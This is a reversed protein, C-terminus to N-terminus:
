ICLMDGYVFCSMDHCGSLTSTMRLSLVVPHKLIIALRLRGSGLSLFSRRLIKTTVTLITFCGRGVATCSTMRSRGSEWFLGRMKKRLLHITCFLNIPAPIPGDVPCVTVDEDESDSSDDQHLTAYLCGEFSILEDHAQLLRGCMVSCMNLVDLVKAKKRPPPASWSSELMEAGGKLMDRVSGVTISIDKFTEGRLESEAYMDCDFVKEPDFDCDRLRKGLAERYDLSDVPIYHGTAEDFEVEPFTDHGDPPQFEFSDLMDLQAVSPPSCDM